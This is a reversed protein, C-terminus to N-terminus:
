RWYVRVEPGLVRGTNPNILVRTRAGGDYVRDHVFAPQLLGNKEVLWYHGHVTLRALQERWRAEGYDPACVFEDHLWERMTAGQALGDYFNGRTLPHLVLPQFLRSEGVFLDQLPLESAFGCATACEHLLQFDFPSWCFFDVRSGLTMAAFLASDRADNKREVETNFRAILREIKDRNTDAGGHQVSFVVFPVPCREARLVPVGLPGTMVLDKLETDIDANM